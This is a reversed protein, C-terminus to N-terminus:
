SKVILRNELPLFTKEGAKTIPNGFPMQAILKWNEPIDFTKKVDGEILESYHQLSAGLGDQALGGWVALQMMGASELSWVPFNAAYLPYADMLGKVVAQDEFFLITGYAANFSNIKDDTPKFQDAPVVKRLAEKTLSWLADHNKNLLLMVRGSQSNFGTPTHLVAEELLARIKTDDVGVKKDLAYTSRRAALVDNFEM